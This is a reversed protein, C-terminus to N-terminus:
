RAFERRRVLVAPEGRGRRFWETCTAPGVAPGRARCIRPEGRGTACPIGILRRVPLCPHFAFRADRGDPCKLDGLAHSELAVKPLPLYKSRTPSQFHPGSVDARAPRMQIQPLSRRCLRSRRSHYSRPERATRKVTSALTTDRSDGSRADIKGVPVALACGWCLLPSGARSEM